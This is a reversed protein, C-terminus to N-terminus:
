NKHIIKENLQKLYNKKFNKIGGFFANESKTLYGKNAKYALLSIYAYLDALQMFPSENQITKIIKCKNFRSIFASSIVLSLDHQGYDYHIILEDYDDFCDLNDDIMKTISNTLAVLINEKVNSKITKPIFIQFKAYKSFLFLNIFLKWRDERKLNGYPKEGRVLNGVHVFHDGGELHKLNNHFKNIAVENDDKPDVCVFAVIYLPNDDDKISFNGSEDVFINLLLKKKM